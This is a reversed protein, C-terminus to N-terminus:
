TALLLKLALVVSSVVVSTHGKVWGVHNLCTHVCEKVTSSSCHSVAAGMKMPHLQQYDVFTIQFRKKELVEKRIDSECDILFLPHYLTAQGLM